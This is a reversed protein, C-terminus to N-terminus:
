RSLSLPDVFFIGQRGGPGKCIKGAARSPASVRGREGWSTQRHSAVIVGKGGREEARDREPPGAGRGLFGFQGGGLGLLGDLVMEVRELPWDGGDGQDTVELPLGGLAM